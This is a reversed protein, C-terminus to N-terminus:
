HRKMVIMTYRLVLDCLVMDFGMLKSAKIIYIQHVYNGPSGFFTTPFTSPTMLPTVIGLPKNDAVTVSSPVVTLVEATM